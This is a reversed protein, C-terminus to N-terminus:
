VSVLILKLFSPTKKRVFSIPIMGDHYLFCPPRSTVPCSYHPITDVPLLALSYFILAQGWHGENELLARGGLPKMVWVAAPGLLCTNSYM